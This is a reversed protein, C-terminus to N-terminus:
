EYKRQVREWQMVVTALDYIMRLRYLVHIGQGYARMLLTKLVQDLQSMKSGYHPIILKVLLWSVRRKVRLFLEWISGPLM